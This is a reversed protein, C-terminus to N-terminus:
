SEMLTALILLLTWRMLLGDDYCDVGDHFLSLSHFVEVSECSDCAECLVIVMVARSSYRLM